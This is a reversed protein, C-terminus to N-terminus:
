SGGLGCERLLEVERGLGTGLFLSGRVRVRYTFGFTQSRLNGQMLTRYSKRVGGGERGGEVIEKGGEM